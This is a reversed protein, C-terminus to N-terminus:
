DRFRASAEPRRQGMKRGACPRGEERRIRRRRRDEGVSGPRFSGPACGELRRVSQRFNRALVLRIGRVKRIPHRRHRDGEAAENASRVAAPHFRSPDHRQAGTSRDRRAVLCHPNPRLPSGWLASGDPDPDLRFPGRIRRPGVHRDGGGGPRLRGSFFRLRCPGLRGLDVEAVWLVAQPHELRWWLKLRFAFLDWGISCGFDPVWRQQAELRREVELPLAAVELPRHYCFFGEFDKRRGEILKIKQLDLLPSRHMRRQVAPLFEPSPQGAPIAEKWRREDM